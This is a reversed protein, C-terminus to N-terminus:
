KKTKTQKDESINKSEKEKEEKIIQELMQIAGQIQYIQAKYQEIRQEYKEITNM